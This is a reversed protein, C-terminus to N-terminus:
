LGQMQLIAWVDKPGLLLLVAALALLMGWKVLSVRRQFRGELAPDARMQQLFEVRRAITSHQWSSLWGPRDRSIGNSRAVKELAEIFIGIGTPCLGRGLPGITTEETHGNCLPGCCSVARCGYIDAQRECRRSIFGFVLFIYGGLVTLLPVIGLLENIALGDNALEDLGLWPVVMNWIGAVVIMSAVLFGLYFAM